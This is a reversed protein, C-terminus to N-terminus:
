QEAARLIQQQQLKSNKNGKQATEEPQKDFITVSGKASTISKVFIQGQQQNVVVAQKENKINENSQSDISDGIKYQFGDKNSYFQAGANSNSHTPQGATSDQKFM